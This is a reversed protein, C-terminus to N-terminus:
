QPPEPAQADPPTSTHFAPRARVKARVMDVRGKGQSAPTEWEARVGPVHEGYEELLEKLVAQELEEEATLSAPTLAKTDESSPQPPQPPPPPPPTVKSVMDPLPQTPESVVSPQPVPAAEARVPDPQEPHLLPRQAVQKPQGHHEPRTGLPQCPQQRAPHAAEHPPHQVHKEKQQVHPSPWSLRAGFPTPRLAPHIERPRSAPLLPDHRLLDIGAPRRLGFHSGFPSFNAPPRRLGPFPIQGIQLGDFPSSGYAPHCGFAASVQAVGVLLVM